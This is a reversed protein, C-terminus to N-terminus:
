VKLSKDGFFGSKIVTFHMSTVICHDYIPINDALLCEKMKLIKCQMFWNFILFTLRFTIDFLLYLRFSISWFTCILFVSNCSATYLTEALNNYVWWTITPYHDAIQYPWTINSDM